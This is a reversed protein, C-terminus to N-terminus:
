FKDVRGSPGRALAVECAFAKEEVLQASWQRALWPAFLAGKSGLATCVGLSHARDLWGALPLKDEAVLRVGSRVATISGAGRLVEGAARALEAAGDDPSGAGDVRYSAGGLVRGDALPLFWHRANIMTAPPVFANRLEVIEGHAARLAGLAPWRPDALLAAGTCLITILANSSTPFVEDRIVAAPADLPGLPGLAGAGSASAPLEFEEELLRGAGKWRERSAALYRTVDLRWIEGFEAAGSAAICWADSASRAIPGRDYPALEGSAHKAAYRTAETANRFVRWGRLSELLSVGLRKEADRYFELAQPLLEDVRWAKVFRQGTVPNMVGAAAASASGAHGRDIIQFEIGVREFEWALATGALGQGVIRVPGSPKEAFKM